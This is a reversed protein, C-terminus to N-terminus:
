GAPEDQEERRWWLYGVSGVALVLALGAASYFPRNPEVVLEGVMFPHLPGCTTACRFKFKGVKNADFEAVAEDGAEAAIQVGYGDLHLGHSVDKSQLRIIVHDGKNVHLVAPSYEFKSAEVDFERTRTALAPTPLLGALGVALLSLVVVLALFLWSPRESLLSIFTRRPATRASAQRPSPSQGPQDGRPPLFATVEVILGGVLLAASAAVLAVAPILPGAAIALVLGVAALGGALIFVTEAIRM